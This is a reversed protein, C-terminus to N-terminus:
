SKIDEFSFEVRNVSSENANLYKLIGNKRM